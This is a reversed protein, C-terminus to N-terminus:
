PKRTLFLRLSEAPIAIGGQGPEAGVQLGAISWTEGQRILLPAGSTGKTAACSHRILRRGRQDEAPGLLQCALDAEIV